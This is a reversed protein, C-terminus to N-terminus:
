VKICFFFFLYLSESFLFWVNNRFIWSNTYHAGYVYGMLFFVTPIEKKDLRSFCGYAKM